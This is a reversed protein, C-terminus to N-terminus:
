RAAAADLGAPGPPQTAEASLPADDGTECMGSASAARSAREASVIQDLVARPDTDHAFQRAEDQEEDSVGVKEAVRGLLRLMATMERENLLNIQLDLQHRRESERSSITQGIMIFFSLFIAELSVVMTLFTFPYPDFAMATSNFVLWTTFFLAHIWLVPASGCFSAIRAAVRYAVPRRAQRERELRLIIEINARTLQEMTGPEAPGSEVGPRMDQM